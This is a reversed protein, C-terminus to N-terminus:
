PRIGSLGHPGQLWQASATADGSRLHLHHYLDEAQAGAPLGLLAAALLAPLSATRIM